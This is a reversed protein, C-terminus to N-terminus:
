PDCTQLSGGACNDITHACVGLGCSTQGLGQDVNGDCDNDLGDCAEAEQGKFPDCVQPVGGICSEESHKCIGLGCTLVELDEDKSGDCDNDLGDCIETGAGEFPDCTQLKADKCNDITHACVGVGCSQTGLGDDVTGNCDEDIGDCTEIAGPKVLAQKDNCDSDTGETFLDKPACLCLPAGAGFGDQDADEFYQACGDADVEDVEGDCDNDIGDCQEISAGAFPDCIVHGGGECNPVTHECAGVGCTQTGLGDDVVGDCNNDLGDCVEDEAGLLPDCGVPVGDECGAIKHECIGVGCTIKAIDDDVLGNCDDDHGNCIEALPEPADCATLGSPLCSKAGPCVGEANELECPTQLELEVATESCACEGEAVVCSRLTDGEATLTEECLFNSPCDEDVECASACFRGQLGVDVSEPQWSGYLVCSELSTPSGHCDTSDVCPRCLNAHDSLCVSAQDAGASVEVKCSWGQPCPSDCVKSCVTYGMHEVCVGSQCDDPSKCLEGFCGSGAECDPDAPLELNPPTEGAGPDGEEDTPEAEDGPTQGPAEDGPAEGAEEGPEESPEEDPAYPDSLDIHPQTAPDGAPDTPNGAPPAQPAIEYALGTIEDACGGLSMTMLVLGLAACVATWRALIGSAVQHRTRTVILIRDMM